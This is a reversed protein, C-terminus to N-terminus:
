KKQAVEAAAEAFGIVRGQAKQESIHATIKRGLAQPDQDAAAATTTTAVVADRRATAATTESATTTASAPLIAPADAALAEVTQGRKKQEAIVQMAAEPGSTKGDFKLSAIIAECGPMSVGEIAQIREREAKAGEARLRDIEATPTVTSVSAVGRQFEASMVTNFDAETAFTRFMTNAGPFRNAPPTAGPNQLKQQFQTNLQAICDDMSAVGDIMGNAIAQQAYFVRGEGMDAWVADPTSGLGDAVAQVFISNLYDVSSQLVGRGDQSLPADGHTIAKYKGSTIYSVSKGQQENAKSRDTHKVLVSISGVESTDSAAYISDCQSAIWYAASCAMGDVWALTPKSCAAIANALQQTGDVEGGPSDIPFVISHVAPDADAQNVADVLAETTMGGCIATFLNMKKALIGDVTILAVGDQVVYGDDSQSSFSNVPIAAKIAEADFTVGAAHREYVAYMADLKEPTIAWPQNLVDLVTM